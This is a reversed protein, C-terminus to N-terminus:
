PALSAIAEPPGFLLVSDHWKLESCNAPLCASLRIKRCLWPPGRRFMSVINLILFAARICPVHGSTRLYDDKILPV